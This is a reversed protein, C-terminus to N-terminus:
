RLYWLRNCGRNLTTLNHASSKIFCFLMRQDCVCCQLSCLLNCFAEEWVVSGVSLQVSLRMECHIVFHGSCVWSLLARVLLIEKQM